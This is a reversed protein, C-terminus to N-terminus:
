NFIFLFNYNLIIQNQCIQSFSIQPFTFYHCYWHASIFNLQHQCKFLITIITQGNGQQRLKLKAPPSERSIILTSRQPKNILRFTSFNMMMMIIILLLLFLIKFLFDWFCPVHPCWYNWNYNSGESQNSFIRICENFPIRTAWAKSFYLFNYEQTCSM